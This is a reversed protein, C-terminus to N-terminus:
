GKQVRPRQRGRGLRPLSRPGQACAEVAALSPRTRERHTPWPPHAPADWPKPSRPCELAETLPPM